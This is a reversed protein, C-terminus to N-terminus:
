AATVKPVQRVRTTKVYNGKASSVGEIVEGGGERGVRGSAHTKRRRRSEKM